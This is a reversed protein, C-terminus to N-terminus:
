NRGWETSGGELKQKEEGMENHERSERQEPREGRMLKEEASQLCRDEPGM